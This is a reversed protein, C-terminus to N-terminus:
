AAIAEMAPLIFPEPTRGTSLDRMLAALKVRNREAEIRSVFASEETPAHVKRWVDLWERNLVMPALRPAPKVVELKPPLPKKSPLACGQIPQSMLAEIHALWWKANEPSAFALHLPVTAAPSTAAQPASPRKYAIASWYDAAMEPHAALWERIFTGVAIGLEVDRNPPRPKSRDPLNRSQRKSV